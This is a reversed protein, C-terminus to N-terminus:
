SKEGDPAETDGPADKSALSFASNRASPAEKSESVAPIVSLNARGLDPLPALDPLTPLEESQRKELALAPDAPDSSRRSKRFPMISNGRDETTVEEPKATSHPM